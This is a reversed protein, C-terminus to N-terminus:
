GAITLRPDPDRHRRVRSTRRQRERSRSCRRRGRGPARDIEAWSVIVAFGDESSTVEAYWNLDDNPGASSSTRSPRRSCRSSRRAPGGHGVKTNPGQMFTDTQSVQPMASLQDFTVSIPNEIAGNLVSGDSPQRHAHDAVLRPPVFGVPNCASTTSARLQPAARGITVNTVGPSTVPMPRTTRSSWARSPSRSGNESVSLIAPDNGFEPRARGSHDGGVVRGAPREVWYHLEDNKCTSHSTFGASALVASLLPGSETTSNGGITVTEPAADDRSSRWRSARPPSRYSGTGRRSVAVAVAPVVLPPPAGASVRCSSSAFRQGVIGVLFM